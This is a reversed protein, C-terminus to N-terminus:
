RFTLMYYTDLGLYGIYEDSDKVLNKERALVIGQTIMTYDKNNFIARVKEDTNLNHVQIRVPQHKTPKLLTVKIPILRTM